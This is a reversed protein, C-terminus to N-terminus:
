DFAAFSAFGSIHSNMAKARSLEDMYASKNKEEYTM